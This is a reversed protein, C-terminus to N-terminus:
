PWCCVVYLNTGEAINRIHSSRLLDELLAGGSADHLADNTLSPRLDVLCFGKSRALPMLLGRGKDGAWAQAAAIGDPELDGQVSDTSLDLPVPAETTTFQQNRLHCPGGDANALFAGGHLVCDGCSGGGPWLQVM